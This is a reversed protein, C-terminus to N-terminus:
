AGLLVPPDALPDVGVSSIFIGDRRPVGRRARAIPDERSLLPVIFRGMSGWGGRRRPLGLHVALTVHHARVRRSRRRQIHAAVALVVVLRQVRVPRQLLERHGVHVLGEVLDPREQRSVAPVNLHDPDLIPDDRNTHEARAARAGTRRRRELTADLRSQETHKAFLRHLLNNVQVLAALVTLPRHTEAHLLHLFM